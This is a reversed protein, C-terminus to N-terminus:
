GGTTAAGLTGGVIRRQLPSPQWRPSKSSSETKQKLLLQRKIGPAYPLNLIDAADKPRGTTNEEPNTAQPPSIQNVKASTMASHVAFGTSSSRVPQSMIESLKSAQLMISENRISSSISNRPRVLRRQAGLFGLAKPACQPTMNSSGFSPNSTRVSPPIVVLQWRRDAICTREAEHHGPGGRYKMSLPLIWTGEKRTVACASGLEQPCAPRAQLLDSMPGGDEPWTMMDAPRNISKGPFSPKPGPPTPVPVAVPEPSPEMFMELDAPLEFTQNRVAVIGQSGTPKTASKLRRTHAKKLSNNLQKEMHVFNSHFSPSLIQMDEETLKPVIGVRPEVSMSSWPSPFEGRMVADRLYTPGTLVFSFLPSFFFRFRVLKISDRGKNHNTPIHRLRCYAAKM